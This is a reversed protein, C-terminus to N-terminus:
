NAEAHETWNGKASYYALNLALSTDAHSYEPGFSM